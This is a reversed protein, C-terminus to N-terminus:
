KKEVPKEPASNVVVNNTDSAPNVASASPSSAGQRSATVGNKGDPYLLSAFYSEVDAFNAHEQSLDHVLNIPNNNYKKRLSIPLKSFQHHANNIFDQIDFIDYHDKPELFDEVSVTSLREEKASDDLLLSLGSIDPHESLIYSLDCQKVLTEDTIIPNDVYKESVTRGKSNKVYTHYSSQPNVDQMSTKFPYGVLHPLIQTTM